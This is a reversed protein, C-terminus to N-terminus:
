VVSSSVSRKEWQTTGDHYVGIFDDKFEDLLTNHELLVLPAIYHRVLNNDDLLPVSMRRELLGRIKNATHVEIGAHLMEQLFEARIVQVSEPVEAFGVPEQGGAQSRVVGKYETICQLLQVERLSGAIKQQVKTTHQTTKSHQTVDSKSSGVNTSCAACYLQGGQVQLFYDPFELVRKKLTDPKV